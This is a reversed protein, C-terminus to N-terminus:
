RWWQFITIKKTHTETTSSVTGGVPVTRRRWHLERCSSEFVGGNVGTTRGQEGDRSGARSGCRGDHCRRVNQRSHHVIQRFRRDNQHFRRDNERIRRDSLLCSLVFKLEQTQNICNLQFVCNKKVGTCIIMSYLVWQSSCVETQIICHSFLQCSVSMRLLSFCTLQSLNVGLTLDDGFLVVSISYIRLCVIYKYVSVSDVIYPDGLSPNHTM